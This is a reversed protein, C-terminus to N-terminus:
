KGEVAALAERAKNGKDANISSEWLPGYVGRQNTEVKQYSDGLAYFQLADVLRAVQEKLREESVSLRRICQHNDEQGHSCKLCMGAGADKMQPHMLDGCRDCRCQVAALKAQLDTIVDRQKRADDIVAEIKRAGLPVKYAYDAIYTDAYKLSERFYEGELQLRAVLKELRENEEKM